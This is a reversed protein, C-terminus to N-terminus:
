AVMVYRDSQHKRSESNENVPGLSQIKEHAAPKQNGRQNRDTRQNGNIAIQRKCCRSRRHEVPAMRTRQLLDPPVDSTPLIPHKERKGRVYDSFLEEVEATQGEMFESPRPQRQCEDKGQDTEGTSELM